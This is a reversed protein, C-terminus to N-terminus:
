RMMDGTQNRTSGMIINNDNSMSMMDTNNTDMPMDMMMMMMDMMRNMRDMTDMMRTMMMNSMNDTNSMPADKMMMKENVDSMASMNQQQDLGQAFTLQTGVMNFISPLAIILLMGGTLYMGLNYE